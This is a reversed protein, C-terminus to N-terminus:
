AVPDEVATPLAGLYHIAIYSHDEYMPITGGSQNYITTAFAEGKPVYGIFTNVLCGYGGADPSDAGCRSAEGIVSGSSDVRYICTFGRVGGTASNDYGVAMTVIYVGSIPVYMLSNAAWTGVTGSNTTWNGVEYVSRTTSPNFWYLIDSAAGNFTWSSGNSAARKMCPVQVGVGAGPTGVSKRSIVFKSM